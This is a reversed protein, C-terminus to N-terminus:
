SSILFVKLARAIVSSNKVQVNFQLLVTKSCKKKRNSTEEFKNLFGKLVNERFWIFSCFWWM